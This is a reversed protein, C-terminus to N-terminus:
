QDNAEEEREARVTRLAKMTVADAHHPTLRHTKRCARRIRYRVDPDELDGAARAISLAAEYAARKDARRYPNQIPQSGPQRWTKCRAIQSITSQAVNFQEAINAQKQGQHLLTRIQRVDDHTLKASAHSERHGFVDARPIVQAHDPNVCLSNGCTARTVHGTPVKTDAYIQLAVQRASRYRRDVPFMPVGGDVRGHWIWCGNEISYKTEFHDKLNRNM